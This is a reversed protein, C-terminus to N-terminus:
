NTKYGIQATTLTEFTEERCFSILENLSERRNDLIRIIECKRVINDIQGGSLHFNEALYRIEEAPLDPLKLKWIKKRSLLDPKPFKVKYLFRREFANDFNALMNTTAFLIGSFTELEQLIINQIANETQAVNGTEVNKRKSFIGDAENFLLIPCPTTEKMFAYYEAFVKKILKESEGFWSSKSRSIDVYMIERGTQRAIQYVSETKGTGPEGYFLVTFGSALGRSKMRKRINKLNKETLSESLQELKGAEEMNFVLNKTNIESPLVTNSRRIRTVAIKMEDTLILGSAKDTLRIRSDEIFRNKQVEVLDQEILPHKGQLMGKTYRFRDRTAPLLRYVILELDADTDGCVFMWYLHLMLILDVDSLGFRKLKKLLPFKRNEEILQLSIGILEGTTFGDEDDTWGLNYITELLDLIDNITEPEPKPVPKNALIAEIINDPIYFSVNSLGIKERSRRNTTKRLMGTQLLTDLDNKYQLLSFPSCGFFGSLDDVGAAGRHFNHALISAILLSQVPTANFYASLEELIAHNDDFFRSSLKCKLAKETVTRITDLILKEKKATEM